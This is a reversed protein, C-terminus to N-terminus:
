AGHASKLADRTGDDLAGTEPLSRSRQFARIGAAMEEDSPSSGARLFGLNRLRGAVGSREDIPDLDGVAVALHLHKKPFFLMVERLHVPAQFSVAGDEGTTRTTGQEGALGEIQYPENALPDGKEDHLVLHVDVRPVTAKYKNTAGKQIPLSERKGEPLYVVDGPALVLPDNRLKRIAENKPDNWVEKADFGGAFALKELHEGQAIVHPLLPKPM